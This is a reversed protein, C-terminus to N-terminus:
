DMKKIEDIKKLCYKVIKISGLGNVENKGVKSKERRIDENKLIKINELINNLLKDDDWVGAYQIFGKKEWYNIHNIQNSAVLITITPTGVRALENLTQGAASIAIDSKLMIEVMEKANPNFILKNKANANKKIMDVNNFGKGIIITSNLQPFHENLMKTIKPTLNRLDDGGFTIMVNKVKRNIRKRPIKWFEKRLPIYQNGLLYENYDFSPYDLKQAYISGNLVIGKPYKIRNNDDLYVALKTLDSIKKFLTYDALYSDVITIDSNKVLDVLKKTNSLWDIIEYKQNTLLSSVSNDGNIIMLPSIGNEEFAQYISLCRTVHGFGIKSSGETVILVKM